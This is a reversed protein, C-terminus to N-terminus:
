SGSRQISGYGCRVQWMIWHAWADLQRLIGKFLLNPRKISSALLKARSTWTATIFRRRDASNRFFHGHVLQFHRSPLGFDSLLVKVAYNENWKLLNAPLPNILEDALTGPIKTRFLMSTQQLILGFAHACRQELAVRDAVSRWLHNDTRRSEIFNPIEFLWSLRLWGGALHQFAHLVHLTFADAESITPFRVQGLNKHRIDSQWNEALSFPTYARSEFLSTHIELRSEPRVTYLDDQATPPATPQGKLFRIEGFDETGAKQYGIKLLIETARDIHTRAVLLDTDIHHRLDFSSCFEPQLSFGKVVAFTIRSASLAEVVTHFEALMAAVRNRNREHRGDLAARWEDPLTGKHGRRKCQHLLYLTLGAEDLWRLLKKKNPHDVVTQLDAWGGQALYALAALKAARLKNM